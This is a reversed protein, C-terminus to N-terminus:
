KIFIFDKPGLVDNELSDLVGKHNAPVLTYVEDWDKVAGNKDCKVIYTKSVIPNEISTVLYYADNAKDFVISQHGTTAGTENVTIVM